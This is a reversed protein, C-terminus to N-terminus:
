SSAGMKEAIGAVEREVSDDRFLDKVNGTVGNRGRRELARHARDWLERNNQASKYPASATAPFLQFLDRITTFGRMYLYM